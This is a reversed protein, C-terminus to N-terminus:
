SKEVIGNRRTENAKGRMERRRRKKIKVRISTKKGDEM